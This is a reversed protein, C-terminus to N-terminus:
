KPLKLSYASGDMKDTPTIGMAKLVTPMIDVLRFQTKTAVVHKMKPMFFAMPIKQVDAQAGGHDGFVGYSTKDALLGLVDASGAWCMTDTLEQGHATWWKKEASTMTTSASYLKYHDGVKYYTAIVGPLGEMVDAAEKKKAM